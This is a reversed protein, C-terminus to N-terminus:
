PPRRTDHTTPRTDHTTHRTNKKTIHRTMHRTTTTHVTDAGGTIDAQLLAMIQCLTPHGACCLSNYSARACVPM